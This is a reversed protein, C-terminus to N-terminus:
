SALGIWRVLRAGGPAVELLERTRAPFVIRLIVLYMASFLVFELAFQLILFHMDSLWAQVLLISLGWICYINM